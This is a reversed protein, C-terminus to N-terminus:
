TQTRKTHTKQKTQTTQTHNTHTKHTTQTKHPTEAFFFLFFAEEKEEEEEEEEIESGLSLSCVHAALMARRWPKAVGNTALEDSDSYHRTVSPARCLRVVVVILSERSGAAPDRGTNKFYVTQKLM